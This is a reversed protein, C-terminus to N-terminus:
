AETLPLLLLLEWFVVQHQRAQSCTLLFLSSPLFSTKSITFFLLLHGSSIFSLWLFLRTRSTAMHSSLAMSLLTEKDGLDSLVALIWCIHAIDAKIAQEILVIQEDQAQYGCQNLAVLIHFRVAEDPFDLHQELLAIAEPEGIRGCIKALRILVERAQGEQSLRTAESTFASKIQNSSDLQNAAIQNSFM